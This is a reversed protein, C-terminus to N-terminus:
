SGGEIPDDGVPVPAARHSEATRSCCNGSGRRRQRMLPPEEAVPTGRLAQLRDRPQSPSEPLPDYGTVDDIQEPRSVTSDLGRERLVRGIAEAIEYTAGQQGAATVLVNM